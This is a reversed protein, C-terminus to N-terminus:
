RMATVLFQPVTALYTGDALARDLNELMADICDPDM